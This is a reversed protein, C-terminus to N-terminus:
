RSRDYMLVQNGWRRSGAETCASDGLRGRLRPCKHSLEQLTINEPVRTHAVCVAGTTGWAAEFRVGTASPNPDPANIGLNDYIDILMGDRTTGHGGCYDARVLRICAQHYAELRVGSRLTKWPKYGFRVCKGQAGDACTLTFGADSSVRRGEADWQGKLPFAWREGRADPDCLESTRGTEADVVLLHYLLTEHAPDLPDTEVSEVKVKLPASLGAQALSLTAGTLDNGSMVRSSAFRIRLVTGDVHVSAIRDSMEQGYSISPFLAIGLAVAARLSSPM